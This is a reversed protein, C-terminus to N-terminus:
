PSTFGEGSVFTKLWDGLSVSGKSVGRWDNLFVHRGGPVVFAASRPSRYEADVLQRVRDGFEAGTTSTFVTLLGDAESTVLGLRGSGLSTRAATVWAQPSSACDLCTPPRAPQWADNWTQWRDLGPLVLPASDALVHVESSPFAARFRHANMVAGYGGASTGIVFVRKAQAFTSSLRSLFAELNRAGAHLTQQGPQYQQTSTGVHLDGTCYPLFAYSADRFPNDASARDFLLAQRFADSTFNSVGYGLEVNWASKVLYCTSADWCAGGGALFLVVDGTPEESPNLGLGTSAGNACRSEAFEVWTWQRSASRIPGVDSVQTPLCAAASLLAIVFSRNM